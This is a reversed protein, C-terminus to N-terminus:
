ASESLGFVEAILGAARIIEYEIDPFNWSLAMSRDHELHCGRCDLDIDWVAAIALCDPYLQCDPNRM